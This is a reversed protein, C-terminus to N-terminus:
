VALVGDFGEFCRHRAQQSLGTPSMTYPVLLRAAVWADIIVVTLGADSESCPGGIGRRCAVSRSSQDLEIAQGSRGIGTGTQAAGGPVVRPMVQFVRQVWDAGLEYPQPGDGHGTIMLRTTPSLITRSSSPRAIPPRRSRWTGSRTSIHDGRAHSLLVYKIDNPNSGVVREGDPRASKAPRPM